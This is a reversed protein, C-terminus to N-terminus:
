LQVMSSQTHVLTPAEDVEAGHLVRLHDASGKVASPECLTMVTPKASHKKTQMVVPSQYQVEM